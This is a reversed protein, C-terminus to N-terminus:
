QPVHNGGLIKHDIMKNFLSDIEQQMEILTKYEYDTKRPRGKGKYRNSLLTYKIDLFGVGYFSKNERTM